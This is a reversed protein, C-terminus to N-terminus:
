HGSQKLYAQKLNGEITAHLKTDTYPDKEAERFIYRACKGCLMYGILVGHERFIFANLSLNNDGGKFKMATVKGGCGACDGDYFWSGKVATGFRIQSQRFLQDLMEEAEKNRM